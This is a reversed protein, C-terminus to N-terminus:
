INSLCLPTSNRMQSTHTYVAKTSLTLSNEMSNTDILVVVVSHILELTQM